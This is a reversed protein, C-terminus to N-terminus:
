KNILDQMGAVYQTRLADNRQLKCGLLSLRHEAMAGNGPLKLSQERFPIPLEYHGDKLTAPTQWIELVSKDQTSMGKKREYVGDVEMQWFQDVKEHLRELSERVTFYAKGAARRGRSSM